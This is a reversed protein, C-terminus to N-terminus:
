YSGPSVGTHKRFVKCFYSSDSFGCSQAVEKVSLNSSTLLACSKEIRLKTLFDGPTIGIQQHFVRCFHSKSLNAVKALDEVRLPEHLNKLCYDRVKLELISRENTKIDMERSVAMAFAYALSSSGYIDPYDNDYGRYLIKEALSAAEGQSDFQTVVKHRKLSQWYSNAEIGTIDLYIFEWSGTEPDTYYIHDENGALLMAEGPNIEYIQGDHELIGKGSITYQWISFSHTSKNVKRKCRYRFDQRYYGAQFLMWGLPQDKTYDSFWYLGEPIKPSSPM